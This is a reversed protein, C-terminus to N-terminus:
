FLICFLVASCLLICFFVFFCLLVCLLVISALRLHCFCCFLDSLCHMQSVSFCLSLYSSIAFAPFIAESAIYKVCLIMSVTLLLHWFCCFITVSAICELWLANDLCTLPPLWLLWFYGSFCHIQCVFFWLSLYSSTDFAAFFPWQPLANSGCLMMSVPSLLHWFCGFIAVSAIYKVCLSDYLCNLPPTLLLLFYDRLCHMRAVFCWLSVYSSTAFAAFLPWQPLANSVCLIM